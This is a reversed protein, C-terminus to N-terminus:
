CSRAKGRNWRLKNKLCFAIVDDINVYEQAFFFYFMGVISSISYRDRQGTEKAVVCLKQEDFSGLSRQCSIIWM